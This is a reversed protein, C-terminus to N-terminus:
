GLVAHLQDIHLPKRLTVIQQLGHAAALKELLTTHSPDLRTVVVIEARCRQEALWHVLDFGDIDPMIIDLVIKTPHCRAYLEQFERGATALSIQYGLASAVAAIFEGNLPEDDVILLRKGDM